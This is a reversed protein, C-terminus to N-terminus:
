AEEASAEEQLMYVNITMSLDFIFQNQEESTNPRIQFSKLDILREMNDFRWLMSITQALNIEQFEASISMAQVLGRSRTQSRSFTIIKDDSIGADRAEQELKALLTYFEGQEPLQRRAYKLDKTTTKVDGVLQEIQAAKRQAEEIKQVNETIQQGWDTYNGWFYTYGYWIGAGVAAVCLFGVLIKERKEM